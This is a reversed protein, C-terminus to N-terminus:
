HQPLLIEGKFMDDESFHLTFITLIECPFSKNKEMFADWAKFYSYALDTETGAFEIALCNPFSIRSHMYFPETVNTIFNDIQFIYAYFAHRGGNTSEVLKSQLILPGIPHSNHKRVFTDFKNIVTEIEKVSPIMYIGECSLELSLVNDIYLNKYSIDKTDAM